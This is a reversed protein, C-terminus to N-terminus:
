RYQNTVTEIRLGYAYNLSKGQCVEQANTMEEMEFSRKSIYSKSKRRVRFEVLYYSYFDEWYYIEPFPAM